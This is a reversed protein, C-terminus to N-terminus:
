AACSKHPLHTADPTDLVRVGAPFRRGLTMQGPYAYTTLGAALAAECFEPKHEIAVCARPTVEMERMAKLYIDPEPKRRAVQSEDGIFDFDDVRLQARLGHLVMQTFRMETTSALAIRMDNEQAIRILNVIGVRPAFGREAVEELFQIATTYIAEIDVEIGQAMAYYRIRARSGPVELLTRYAAEDWHWFLEHEEFATNLARRQLDSTEALVGASGLILAYSSM